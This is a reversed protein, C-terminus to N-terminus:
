YELLVWKSDTALPEPLVGELDELNTYENLLINAM